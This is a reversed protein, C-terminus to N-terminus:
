WWSITNCVPGPLGALALWTKFNLINWALDCIYVLSGLVQAMKEGAHPELKPYEPKEQSWFLWSEDPAYTSRDLRSSFCAYFATHCAFTTSANQKRKNGKHTTQLSRLQLEMASPAMVRPPIPTRPDGKYIQPDHVEIM